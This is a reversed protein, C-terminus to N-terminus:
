TNWTPTYERNPPENLSNVQSMNQKDSAIKSLPYDWYLPIILIPKDKM